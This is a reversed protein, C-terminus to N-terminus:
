QRRQDTQSSDNDGDITNVSEEHELNEYEFEDGNSNQQSM